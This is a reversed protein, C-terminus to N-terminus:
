FNNADSSTGGHRWSNQREDESRRHHEPNGVGFKRIPYM